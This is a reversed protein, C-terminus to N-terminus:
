KAEGNYSEGWIKRAESRIRAQHPKHEDIRRPYEPLADWERRAQARIAQREIREIRLHEHYAACHHAHQPTPNDAFPYSAESYNMGLGGWTLAYKGRNMCERHYEMREERDNESEAALMHELESVDECDIAAQFASNWDDDSYTPYEVLLQKPWEGGALISHALAMLDIDDRTKINAQTNM